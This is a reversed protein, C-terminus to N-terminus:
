EKQMIQWRIKTMKIIVRDCLHAPNKSKEKKENTLVQNLLIPLILMHNAKNAYM